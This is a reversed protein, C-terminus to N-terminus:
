RRRGGLIELLLYLADNYGRAYDNSCDEYFGRVEKKVRDILEAERLDVARRADNLVVRVSEKLVAKKGDYDFYPKLEEIIFAERSTANVILNEKIAADFSM